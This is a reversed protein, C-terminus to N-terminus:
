NWFLRQSQKRLTCTHWQWLSKKIVPQQHVKKPQKM